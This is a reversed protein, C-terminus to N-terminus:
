RNQKNRWRMKVKEKKKQHHWKQQINENRQEKEEKPCWWIWRRKEKPVRLLHHWIWQGVKKQCEIFVCVRTCTVVCMCSCETETETDRWRNGKREEDTERQGGKELSLSSLDHETPSSPTCAPHIRHTLKTDTKIQRSEWKLDIIQTMLYVTKHLFHCM